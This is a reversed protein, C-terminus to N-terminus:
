SGGLATRDSERAPHALGGARPSRHTRQRDPATAAASTGHAAVPGPGRFRLSVSSTGFAPGPPPGGGRGGHFPDTSRSLLGGRRRAIPRLAGASARPCGCGGGSRPSSGEHQPVGETGGPPPIGEMSSVPRRGSGQATAFSKADRVGRNSDWEPERGRGPGRTGVAGTGYEQAGHGCGVDHQDDKSPEAGPDEVAHGAAAAQDGERDQEPQAVRREGGVDRVRDADPGAVQGRGGAEALLDAVLAGPEHAESRDAQGTADGAGQEQERRRRGGEVVHHRPQDQTGGGQEGRLRQQPPSEVPARGMGAGPRDQQDHPDEDGGDVATVEARGHAHHEEGDEAQGQGDREGVGAPQAGDQGHDDVRTAAM